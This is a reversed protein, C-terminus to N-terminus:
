QGSVWSYMEEIKTYHADPGVDKIFQAEEDNEPSAYSLQDFPCVLWDYDTREVLARCPVESHAEPNGLVARVFGKTPPRDPRNVQAFCGVFEFLQCNYDSLKSVSKLPVVSDGKWAGQMHVALAESVLRTIRGSKYAFAFKDPFQIYLTASNNKAERLTLLYHRNSIGDYLLLDRTRNQAQLTVELSM